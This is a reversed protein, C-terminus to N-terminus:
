ALTRGSLSAIRKEIADPILDPNVTLRNGLPIGSNWAWFYVKTAVAFFTEDIIDDQFRGGVIMPVFTARHDDMMVRIDCRTRENFAEAVAEMIDWDGLSQRKGEELMRNLPVSAEVAVSTLALESMAALENVCENRLVYHAEYAVPRSASFFGYITTWNTLLYGEGEGRLASAEERMMMMEGLWAQIYWKADAETMDLHSTFLGDVVLMGGSVTIRKIVVTMKKTPYVGPAYVKLLIERQWEIIDVSMELGFEFEGASLVETPAKAKKKRRSVVLAGLGLVFLSIPEM